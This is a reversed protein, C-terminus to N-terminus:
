KRWNRKRIQKWIIICILFMLSIYPSLEPRSLWEGFITQAAESIGLVALIFLIGNESKENTSTNLEFLSKIQAEIGAQQQNIFLKDLLINYLEIGQQQATVEQLLLESQFMVYKKQVNEVDLNNKKCAIESITREFALLSARQALVLMVMEVYETVFPLFTAMPFNTISIMSYETIGTITGMELWRTYIHKELLSKLMTRSYCSMGDGDIFVMEYLRKALNDDANPYLREADAIYRYAKAEQDWQKMDGMFSSNDYICAVYMRDDIIPEIYYEDAAPRESATICKKENSLFFQVLPSLKIENICFDEAGSIKGSAEEIVDDGFFLTIQDACLKCIPEQDNKIFPLFVRRGFENILIVDKEEPLDYNELEFVLMGVGTNFLKLRIGNIALKANFIVGNELKKEIDLRAKNDKCKPNNYWDNKCLNNKILSELDFRYNWVVASDDFETTYMANRAAKNFYRHQDHFEKVSGQLEQLKEERWGEGLNPLCKIFEKRNRKGGNDFLFPFIFTHYSYPVEQVKERM